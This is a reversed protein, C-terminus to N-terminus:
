LDEFIKNLLNKKDISNVLVRIIGNLYIFYNKIKLNYYTFLKQTQNIHVRLVCMLGDIKLFM